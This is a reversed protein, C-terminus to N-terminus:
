KEEPVYVERYPLGSYVECVLFPIHERGLVVINPHEERAVKAFHPDREIHPLVHRNEYHLEAWKQVSNRPDKMQRCLEANRTYTRELIEEDDGYIVSGGQRIIVRGVNRFFELGNPQSPVRRPALELMVRKGELKESMLFKVLMDFHQWSHSVGVLLITHDM